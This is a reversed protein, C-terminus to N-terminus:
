PMKTLPSLCGVENVAVLGAVDDDVGWLGVGESDVAMSWEAIETLTMSATSKKLNLSVARVKSGAGDEWLLEFLVLLLM